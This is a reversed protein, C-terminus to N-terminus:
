ALQHVKLYKKELTNQTIPLVLQNRIKKKQLVQNEKTVLVKKRVMEQHHIQDAM